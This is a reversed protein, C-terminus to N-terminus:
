LGLKSHISHNFWSHAGLYLSRGGGAWRQFDPDGGCFKWFDSGGAGVRNKRFDPVWNEGM